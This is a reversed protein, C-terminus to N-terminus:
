TEPVMTCKVSFHMLGVVKVRYHVCQDWEWESQKKLLTKDAIFDMSSNSIKPIWRLDIFASCTRSHKLRVNVVKM